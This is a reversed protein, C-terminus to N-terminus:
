GELGFYSGTDLLPVEVTGGWVSQTIDTVAAPPAIGIWLGAVTAAALGSVAGWGGIAALLVAGLPRRTRAPGATPAAAEALVMDADQMIRDFLGEGPRQVDSRAERMLADFFADNRDDTMTM